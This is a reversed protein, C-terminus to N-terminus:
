IVIQRRWLCLFLLLTMKFQIIQNTYSLVCVQLYRNIYAFSLVLIDLNSEYGVLSLIQIFNLSFLNKFLTENLEKM